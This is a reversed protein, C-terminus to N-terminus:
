GGTPQVLISSLSSVFLPFCQVANWLVITAFMEKTVGRQFEVIQGAARAIDLRTTEDRQM